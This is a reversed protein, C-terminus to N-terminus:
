KVTYLSGRKISVYSTSPVINIKYPHNRHGTARSRLTPLTGRPTTENSTTLGDDFVLILLRPSRHCVVVWPVKQVPSCGRARAAHGDAAVAAGSARVGMPCASLVVGRPSRPHARAGVGPPAAHGTRCGLCDAQTAPPAFQANAAAIPRARGRSTEGPLRLHREQSTAARKISYFVVFM